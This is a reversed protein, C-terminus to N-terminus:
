YIYCVSSLSTRPALLIITSSVNHDKHMHLWAYIKWMPEGIMNSYCSIHLGCPHGYGIGCDQGGVKRGFAQKMSTYVHM